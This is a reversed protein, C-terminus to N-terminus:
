NPCRSPMAMELDAFNVNLSRTMRFLLGGMSNVSKKSKKKKRKKQNKRSVEDEPLFFEDTILSAARRDNKEGARRESEVGYVNRFAM